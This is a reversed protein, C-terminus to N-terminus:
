ITFGFENICKNVQDVNINGTDWIYVAVICKGENDSTESIFIASHYLETDSEAKYWDARYLKDDSCIVENLKLPTKM